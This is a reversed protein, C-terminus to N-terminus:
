RTILGAGRVNPPPTEWGSIPALILTAKNRLDPDASTRLLNLQAIAQAAERAFAVLRRTDQKELDGATKRLSAILIM